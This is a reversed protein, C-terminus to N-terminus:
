LYGMDGLVHHVYDNRNDASKLPPVWRRNLDFNVSNPAGISPPIVAHTGISTTGSANAAFYAKIFGLARLVEQFKVSHSGADRDGIVPISKTARRFDIPFPDCILHKADCANDIFDIIMGTAKIFPLGLILNVAVDPGAAVLLSTDNGDKTIYPLHLEFGVSLESTIPAAASSTVIGSLIIAAYDEPLYIAKLIQPYQRVVAEMYHFNATSLSAGTDYDKEEKSTGTQMILHPMPSHIAIPIQPKSSQTSLIVVDQHLTVNGRRILGPSTSGTLTSAASSTSGPVVKHLSAYHQAALVDHRSEPIDEWNVTNLNNRKKNNKANRKKRAQYMQINMEAKERVGPEDARPCIVVYKGDVLKSYPHPGGCGFCEPVYTGSPSRKSTDGGGYRQITKEAQSANV